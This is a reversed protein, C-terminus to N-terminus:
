KQDIKRHTSIKVNKENDIKRGYVGGKDVLTIHGSRSERNQNVVNKWNQCCLKRPADWMVVNDHEM